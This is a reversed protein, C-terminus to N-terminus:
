LTVYRILLLLATVRYRITTDAEFNTLIMTLSEDHAVFDVAHFRGLIASMKSVILFDPDFYRVSIDSNKGSVGIYVNRHMRLSFM